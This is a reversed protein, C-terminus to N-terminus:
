LRKVSVGGGRSQMLPLTRHPPPWPAALGRCQVSLGGLIGGKPTLPALAPLDMRPKLAALFPSPLLHGAVPRGKPSPGVEGGAGENLGPAGCLGGPLRPWPEPLGLPCAPEPPRFGCGASPQPFDSAQTQPTPTPPWGSTTHPALGWGWHSGLERLPWPLGPSLSPGWGGQVFTVFPRAPLGPGPRVPGRGPHSRCSGRPYLGALDWTAAGPESHACLRRDRGLCSRAGQRPRRERLLDEAGAAAPWVGLSPEWSTRPAASGAWEDTRGCPTRAAELDPPYVRTSGHASPVCRRAGARAGWGHSQPRPRPPVGHGRSSAIVPAAPRIM